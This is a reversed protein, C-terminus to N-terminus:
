SVFAVSGVNINNKCLGLSNTRNAGLDVHILKDRCKKSLICRGSWKRIDLDNRPIAKEILIHDVLKSKRIGIKKSVVPVKVVRAECLNEAFCGMFQEFSVQGLHDLSFRFFAEVDNHLRGPLQELCLCNAISLGLFGEFNEYRLTLRIRLVADIGYRAVPTQM